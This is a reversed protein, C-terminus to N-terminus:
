LSHFNHWVSMRLHLHTRLSLLAFLFSSFVKGWGGGDGGSGAWHLIEVTRIVTPTWLGETVHPHGWLNPSSEQFSVPSHALLIVPTRPLIDLICLLFSHFKNNVYLVCSGHDWPRLWWDDEGGGGVGRVKEAGIEGLPWVIQNQVWSRPHQLGPGSWRLWELSWSTGLGAPVKFGCRRHVLSLCANFCASPDLQSTLVVEEKM